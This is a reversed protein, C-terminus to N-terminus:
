RKAEVLRVLDALSTLKTVEEPTLHLSFEEEIALVIRIHNLSDWNPLDARRFDSEPAIQMSLVQGMLYAIRDRISESM